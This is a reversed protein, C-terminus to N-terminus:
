FHVAKLAYTSETQFKVVLTVVLQQCRYNEKKLSVNQDLIQLFVLLKQLKMAHFYSIVITSMSLIGILYMLITM